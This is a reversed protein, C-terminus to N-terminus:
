ETIRITKTKYDVLMTIEAGPTLIEFEGLDLNASNEQSDSTMDVSVVQYIGPSLAMQSEGVAIDGKYVNDNRIFVLHHAQYESENKYKMNIKIHYQDKEADDMDRILHDVHEEYYARRQEVDTQESNIKQEDLKEYENKTNKKCSVLLMIIILVGLVYKVRKM